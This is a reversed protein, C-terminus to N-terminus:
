DNIMALGPVMLIFGALYGALGSLMIKVVGWVLLSMTNLDSKIFQVLDIIGGIFMLYLGVYFGLVIGAIILLVGFIVKM